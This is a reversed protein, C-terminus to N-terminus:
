RTIFLDGSHDNVHWEIKDMGGINDLNSFYINTGGTNNSGFASIPGNSFNNTPNLPESFYSTYVYIDGGYKNYKWYIKDADGDGDIDSFYFKTDSSISGSSHIATTSFNGGGTALFVRIDGGYKDRKWYIKDAKGDGNVDAFYLKTVSSTSGSSHVASTSFNGGNTALFVRVDGGYKDRKWYIKDARGDGNVDAFYYKTKTSSSGSSHIASTSFNGGNTALFVRIDGGYSNNKWYIKDAKGDGSVDAFYFKTNDSSSGSNHVGNQSFWTYNNQLSLSYGGDFVRLDGGYKDYKWYIKDDIGDGDVDAFYFKTKNSSSGSSYHYAIANRESQSEDTVNTKEKLELDESSEILDDSCSFMFLVSLFMVKMVYNSKKM